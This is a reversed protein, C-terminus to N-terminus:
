IVTLAMLFADVNTELNEFHVVQTLTLTVAFHGGTTATRM